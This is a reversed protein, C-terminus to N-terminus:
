VQTYQAALFYRGTGNLRADTGSVAISAPYATSGSELSLNAAIGNKWYVSPGQPVGTQNGAIYVDSGSVVVSRAIANEQLNIATGNKWYRAYSKGNLVESGAVYVDNGVVFISNAIGLAGPDTTSLAVSTGNKWYKAILVSGSAEYGAVYVDNGVVTIAKAQADNTGDTLDVATSDKWYKAVYHGVGNASREYGGM